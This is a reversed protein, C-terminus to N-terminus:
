TDQGLDCLEPLTSSESGLLMEEGPFWAEEMLCDRIDKFIVGHTERTGRSGRFHDKGWSVAEEGRQDSEEPCQRSQGCGKLHAACVEVHLTRRM